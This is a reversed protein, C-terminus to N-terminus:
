GGAFSLWQLRWLELMFKKNEDRNLFCALQECPIIRQNAVLRMLDHCIGETQWPDGNIYLKFPDTKTSPQYAIRCLPNRRLNKNGAFDALFDTENVDERTPPLHSEAVGDLSTAFQGFWNKLRHEDSVMQTLLQKAQQFAADPLAGTESMTRWNPDKYLAESGEEGSLHECFSTFLELSKYSRYGFSYTMCDDSLSVGHHGVHPPLYLIDGPHLTYAQEVNFTKMIRLDVGDLYNHENCHQTTLHWQRQGKAQLLFVDYDDYHPGVSGHLAAYSIMIDDVRWQPIFDFLSLLDQIEPILTDVGQVLLTWHSNPLKSFDADTFPGRRLKWPPTHTPREIIIRSEVEPELSLGALEEPSLPSTFHPLAQKLVIPKKQWYDDLFTQLSIDNFHLQKPNM